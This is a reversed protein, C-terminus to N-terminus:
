DTSYYQAQAGNGGINNSAAIIKSADLPDVSISSESRPDFQAGSIREDGGITASETGAVAAPAGPRRGPTGPQLDQHTILWEHAERLVLPYGGTPDGPIHKASTHSKRWLVRLWPPLPIHDNQEAIRLLSFDQNAAILRALASGPQVGDRSLQKELSPWEARAAAPVFAAALLAVAALRTVNVQSGIRM